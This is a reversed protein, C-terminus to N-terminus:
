SCPPWSRAGEVGVVLLHAPDADVAAIAHLYPALQEPTGAGDRTAGLQDAALLEVVAPVDDVTARRLEVVTGQLTLQALADM